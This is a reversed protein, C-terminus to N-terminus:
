SVTKFYDIVQSVHEPPIDEDIGALYTYFYIFNEITIRSPGGELDDSTIECVKKM